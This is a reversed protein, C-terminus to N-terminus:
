PANKLHGTEYSVLGHKEKYHEAEAAMKKKVKAELREANGRIRSLVNGMTVDSNSPVVRLMGLAKAAGFVRDEETESDEGDVQRNSESVTGTVVVSINLAKIMEPTIEYPPDLIVDDVYKCALVSLVRENLNLVPHSGGRYYNCIGDNLVGVLLFDGMKKAEKLVSAHGAHFMDFGGHIYVVKTKSNIPRPSPQSFLRLMRSTTLFRSARYPGFKSSLESQSSSVREGHQGEERAQGPYVGPNGMHHHTSMLLMRGVIETTSVGETRPISRYMGRAKVHGYVDKGDPGICPDDGHVVFDIKYTDIVWDLYEPTMVYPTRPIVEDVWKCASVVEVRESDTMIPPAGKCEEISESSNVGAVLYTGLSRAQRFANAHGYHMVDFAGEVFIRVEKHEGSASRTQVLSQFDEQDILEQLVRMQEAVAELERRLEKRDRRHRQGAVAYYGALTASITICVMAASLEFDTTAALGISEFTRNM